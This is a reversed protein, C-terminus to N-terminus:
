MLSEHGTGILGEIWRCSEAVGGDAQEAVEVGLDAHLRHLDLGQLFLQIARRLLSEDRKSPRYDLSLGLHLNLSPLLNPAPTLSLTLCHRVRYTRSKSKRRRKSRKRIKIRSKRRRKCNAWWDFVSRCKLPM